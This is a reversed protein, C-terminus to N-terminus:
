LRAQQYYKLAEQAVDKAESLEGISFHVELKLLKLMLLCSFRGFQRGAAKAQGHLGDAIAKKDEEEPSIDNGRFRVPGLDLGSNNPSVQWTWNKRSGTELVGANIYIYIYICFINVHISIYM